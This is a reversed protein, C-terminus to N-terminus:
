LVFAYYCIQIQVFDTKRHAGAFGQLHLLDPGPFIQRREVSRDTLGQLRITTCDVAALDNIQLPCRCSIRFPASGAPDPLKGATCRKQTFATKCFLESYFLTHQIFFDLMEPFLSARQKNLSLVNSYFSVM